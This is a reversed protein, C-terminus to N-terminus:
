PVAGSAQAKDHRGKVCTKLAPGTDRVFCCSWGTHRSDAMIPTGSVGLDTIPLRLEGETGEGSLLM